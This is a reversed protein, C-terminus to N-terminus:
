VPLAQPQGAHRHLVALRQAPLTDGVGGALLLLGDGVLDEGLVLAQVRAQLLVAAPAREPAHALLAAGRLRRPRRTCNALDASPERPGQADSRGDLSYSSLTFREISTPAIM